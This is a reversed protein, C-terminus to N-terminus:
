INAYNIKGGENELRDIQVYDFVLERLFDTIQKNGREVRQQFSALVGRRIEL